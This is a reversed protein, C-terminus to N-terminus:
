DIDPFKFLQIFINQQIFIYKKKNFNFIYIRKMFCLKPRRLQIFIQRVCFYGPNFNFSYLRQIFIDLTSTSDVYNNFSFIRHQLQILISQQMFIYMTSNQLLHGVMGHPLCFSRLIVTVTFLESGQLLLAHTFSVIFIGHPLTSSSVPDSFM